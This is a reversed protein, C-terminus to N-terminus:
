GRAYRVPEYSRCGFTLTEGAGMRIRRARCVYGSQTSSAYFTAYGGKFPTPPLICRNQLNPVSLFLPGRQRLIKERLLRIPPRESDMEDCGNMWIVVCSATM